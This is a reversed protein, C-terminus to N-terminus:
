NQCTVNTLSADASEDASGWRGKPIRCRDLCEYVTYPGEDATKAHYNALLGGGDGAGGRTLWSEANQNEKSDSYNWFTYM